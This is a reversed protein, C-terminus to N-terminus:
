NSQGEAAPQAPAAITGAAAGPAGAPPDNEAAPAKPRGIRVKSTRIVDDYMKYGKQYVEIVKERDYSDAEELSIAEHVNPDFEANIPDIEKVGHGELFGILRKHIMSVGDHFHKVDKMDAKLAREFDDLFDLMQVILRKNAYKLFESKEKEFRKRMNEAEARSRKAIDEYDRLRSEMEEIEQKAVMLDVIPDEKAKAPDEKEEKIKDDM